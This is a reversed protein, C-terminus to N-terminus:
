KNETKNKLLKRFWDMQEEVTMESNDMIHADPAKRLPSISRGSDIRDRDAINALIDNYDVDLGKEKLESFRREARVKEGATMFIKIDADPFVVTGIDRGDMVIGKFMGIERQLQVLRERVKGIKSIVSVMSSVEIRRIEEEVNEGNLYTEHRELDPNYSFRINIDKIRNIIEDEHLHSGSVLGKRICYLTVARYMAGSDIYLYDMENAIAKAFTSKGSSSHGDVAIIMKHKM